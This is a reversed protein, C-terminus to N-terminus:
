EKWMVADVWSEEWMGHYNGHGWMAKERKFSSFLIASFRELEPRSATGGGPHDRLGTIGHLINGDLLVVDAPGYSIDFLGDVLFLRGGVGQSCWEGDVYNCMGPGFIVAPLPCPMDHHPGAQSSGENLMLTSLKIFPEHDMGHIVQLDHSSASLNLPLGSVPGFM